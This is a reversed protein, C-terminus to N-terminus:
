PACERLHGKGDENRQQNHDGDERHVPHSRQNQHAGGRSIRLQKHRQDAYPAASAPFQGGVEPM